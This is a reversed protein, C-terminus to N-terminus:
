RSFLDGDAYAEKRERLMEEDFIKDARAEAFVIGAGMQEILAACRLAARANQEDVTSSAVLDDRLLELGDRMLKVDRLVPLPGEHSPYGLAEYAQKLAQPDMVTLYAHIHPTNTLVALAKNLKDAVAACTKLTEALENAIKDM